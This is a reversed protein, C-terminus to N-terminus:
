NSNTNFNLKSNSRNVSKLKFKKTLPIAQKSLLDDKINKPSESVTQPHFNISQSKFNALLSKAANKSLSSSRQPQYSNINSKPEQFTFTNKKEVPPKESKKLGKVVLKKGAINFNIINSPVILKKPESKYDPRDEPIKMQDFLNDIM